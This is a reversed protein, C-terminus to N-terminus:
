GGIEWEPDTTWKEISAGFDHDGSEPSMTLTIKIWQGAKIDSFNMDFNEENGDVTGSFHVSLSNSQGPAHFYGARSDGNEFDLWASEVSIRTSYSSGLAAQLDESYAVTIKICALTCGVTVETTQKATVTAPSSGYYYPTWEADSQQRSQVNVTYNGAPISIESPMESYIWSGTQAGSDDLITVIFSDTSVARTIDTAVIGGMTLKGYEKEIAPSDNKRCGTMLIAASLFLCSIIYRNM